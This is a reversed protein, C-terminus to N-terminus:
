SFDDLVYYTSDLDDAKPKFTEIAAADGESDILAVESVSKGSLGGEPITYGYKYCLQGIKKISSIKERRLEHTLATATPLPAVVTGDERVGGDGFAIMTIAPLTRKGARADAMKERAVNPIMANAM